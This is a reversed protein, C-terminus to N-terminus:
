LSRQQPSSIDFAVLGLLEKVHLLSAPARSSILRARRAVDDLPGPIPAGHEENPQYSLCRFRGPIGSLALPGPANLIAVQDANGHRFNAPRLCITRTAFHWNGGPALAAFQLEIPYTGKVARGNRYWRIVYRVAAVDVGIIAAVAVPGCWWKLTDSCQATFLLPPNSRRHIPPSPRSPPVLVPAAVPDGVLTSLTAATHRRWTLARVTAHRLFAWVFKV